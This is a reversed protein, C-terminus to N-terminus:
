DALTLYKGSESDNIINNCIIATGKINSIDDIPKADSINTYTGDNMTLLVNAVGADADGGFRQVIIGKANNYNNDTIIIPTNVLTFAQIVAMDSYPALWLASSGGTGGMYPGMIVAFVEKRGDGDLDVYNYYYRTDKKQDEPIQYYDIIAKELDKDPETEAMVQKVGAPLWGTFMDETEPESESSMAEQTETEPMQDSQTDPMQETAMVGSETTEDFSKAAPTTKGSCGSLIIGAGLLICVFTSSRKM